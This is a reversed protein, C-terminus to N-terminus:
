PRAITLFTGACIGAREIPNPLGAYNPLMGPSKPRKESSLIEARAKGGRLGCARAVQQAPTLARARDDIHEGTAIWMIKVAAGVVDAPRKEGRPGKPM